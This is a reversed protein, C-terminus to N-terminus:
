GAAPAAAAMAELLQAREREVLGTDLRGAAFDEHRIVAKLFALNNKVGEIRSGELAALMAALAADRNEGWVIMKAIMPDYFPTTVDGQRVGTDVRVHPATPPLAFVDLPGPSPFFNKAPNEAYLRCEIAAGRTAINEQAIKEFGALSPGAAALKIQQQVLDWGTVMETVPHEVQIRTNMELFFFELSDADVIFEVTGPGRYRQHAALAAAAKAMRARLEAPLGPAPSEEIIKQFRRQISCEREFLHVASGDGYGFVQIEVHRARPVYRELYITGDKFSKAALQQTASVSALLKEPADVLRMGIGGGGGTAKVLLPYGVTVAAEEIGALDDLAFRRSGPLTPVGAAKAIERAREKDGMEEISQPTPGIWVVGAAEAARAFATNESLFGYGPHVGEAGHAVAAALIREHNLYSEAPSAPGIAVARDAMEVHLSKADAESYVAVTEIGLAKCARIVRCAIEGRNAILIRKM